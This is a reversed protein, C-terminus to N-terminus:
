KTVVEAVVGDRERLPYRQAEAPVGDILLRAVGRDLDEIGQAELSPDSGDIRAARSTRHIAQVEILPLELM